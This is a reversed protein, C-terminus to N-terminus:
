KSVKGNSKLAFLQEIPTEYFKALMLASSLEVECGYEMRLITALPVSSAEAVARLTLGHKERVQRLCVDLVGGLLATKIKRPKKRKLSSVTKM